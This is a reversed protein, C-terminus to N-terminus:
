GNYKYFLLNRKEHFAQSWHLYLKNEGSKTLMFMYPLKLLMVVSNQESINSMTKKIKVTIEFKFIKVWIKIWIINIIIQCM